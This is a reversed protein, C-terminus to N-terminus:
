NRDKCFGCIKNYQSILQEKNKDDKRKLYYGWFWRNRINKLHNLKAEREDIPNTLEEFEMQVLRKPPLERELPLERAKPLDRERFQSFRTDKWNQMRFEIWVKKDLGILEACEDINDRKCM